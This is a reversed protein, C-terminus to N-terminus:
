AITQSLPQSKVEVTIRGDKMLMSNFKAIGSQDLTIPKALRPRDHWDSGKEWHPDIVKHVTAEEDYPVNEPCLEDIIRKRFEEYEREKAATDAPNTAM